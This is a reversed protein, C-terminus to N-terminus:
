QILNTKTTHIRVNQVLSMNVLMTKEQKVGENRSLSTMPTEM